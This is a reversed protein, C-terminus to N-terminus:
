NFNKEDRVTGDSNYWIWRGYYMDNKGNFRLKKGQSEMQGNPHNTTINVLNDKEYRSYSKRNGNQYYVVEEYPKSNFYVKEKEINGNEFFYLEAVKGGDEVIRKYKLNAM